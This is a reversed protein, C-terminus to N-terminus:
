RRLAVLTPALAEAIWGAYLAHGAENLHVNDHYLGREVLPRMPETLDLVPLGSAALHRRVMQDLEDPDGTFEDLHPSFVVLVSKGREQFVRLEAYLRRLSEDAVVIDFRQDYADQSWRLRAAASFASFGALEWLGKLPGALHKSFFHAGALDSTARIPDVSILTVVISDALAVAPDHRLRAVMNDVGYGNVGANGCVFNGRAHAELRTCTLEAFVKGDDTNTGGWTVSDGVFLIRHDAPGSWPETGRLGEPGVTVAAGRRRIVHQNPSPAYRYAANTTYVIPDGLGIARAGWEAAAVPALVLAAAIIWFVTKKM